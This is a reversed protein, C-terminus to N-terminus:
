VIVGFIEGMAGADGSCERLAGGGGGSSKFDTVSLWCRGRARVLGSFWVAWCDDKVADDFGDGLVGLVGFKERKMGFHVGLLLSDAEDDM